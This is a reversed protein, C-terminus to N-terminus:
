TVTRFSISHHGAGYSVCRLIQFRRNWLDLGRKAAFWDFYVADDGLSGAEFREIFEHSSFGHEQEFAACLDAYYDRRLRAQETEAHLAHLITTRIEDSSFETQEITLDIHM